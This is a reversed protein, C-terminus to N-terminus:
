DLVSFGLSGNSIKLRSIVHLAPLATRELVRPALSQNLIVDVRVPKPSELALSLRASNGALDRGAAFEVPPLDRWLGPLPDRAPRAVHLTARKLNHQNSHTDYIAAAIAYDGPLVFAHLEFRVVLLDAPNTAKPLLLPRRSPYVRRARDRIQFLAFMQGRAPRQIFESADVEAVIVAELRQQMSLTPHRVRLSWRIPTNSSPLWDDLPLSDPPQASAAFVALALMWLRFM